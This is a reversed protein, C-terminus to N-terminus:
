MYVTGNRRQRVNNAIGHFEGMQLNPYTIGAFCGGIQYMCERLNTWAWGPDGTIMSLAAGTDYIIEIQTTVLRRDQQEYLNYSSQIDYEQANNTAVPKRRQKLLEQVEEDILRMRDASEANSEGMEPRHRNFVQYYIALTEPETPETSPYNLSPPSDARRVFKARKQKRTTPLSREDTQSQSSADTESHRIGGDTVTTTDCRRADTVHIASGLCLGWADETFDYRQTISLDDIGLQEGQHPPSGTNARHDRNTKM